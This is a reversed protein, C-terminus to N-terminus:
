LTRLFAARDAKKRATLGIGFRQDYLEVVDTVDRRRRTYLPMDSSRRAPDSLGIDLPAKVSHNFRQRFTSCDVRSRWQAVYASNVTHAAEVWSM